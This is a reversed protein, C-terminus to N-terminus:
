KPVGGLVNKQWIDGMSYDELWNKYDESNLRKFQSAGQENMDVVVVDEAEFENLFLPSQTALIVQKDLSLRKILDAILSIAYPHLGLEPEDIIVVNSIRNQPMCLLTILAILRLTGDSTLHAGFSKETRESRWRLAVRNYEEELEFDQFIPLAKKVLMGIEDYIKRKNNKLDLLVSALNGGNTRLFQTDGADWNLKLPSTKSTDHFQFVTCNSLITKTVIATQNQAKPLLSEENGVGLSNWDATTKLKKSSFRYSEEGFVLRNDETHQLRFQYDNKGVENSFVLKAFISQTNKSGQFLLGDGGGKIAIHEQLNQGRIMWGLLEFFGLLNSKGAGNAGVLVNLQKLEFNELKKISKFGEISIKELITKPPKESSPQKFQSLNKNSNQSFSRRKPGWNQKKPEKQGQKQM